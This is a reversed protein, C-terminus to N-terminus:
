NSDAHQTLHPINTSLRYDLNCKMSDEELCWFKKKESSLKNDAAVPLEFVFVVPFPVFSIFHAVCPGFGRTRM